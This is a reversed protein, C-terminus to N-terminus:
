VGEFMPYPVVGSNITKDFYQRLLEPRVKPFAPLDSLDTSGVELEVAGLSAPTTSSAMERYMTMAHALLKQQLKIINDTWVGDLDGYYVDAPWVGLHDLYPWRTGSLVAYPM